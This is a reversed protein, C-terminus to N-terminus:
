VSVELRPRRAQPRKAFAIAIPQDPQAALGRRMLGREHHVLQPVALPQYAAADGAFAEGGAVREFARQQDREDDSAQKAQEAPQDEGMIDPLPDALNRAEGVLDAAMVQRPADGDGASIM